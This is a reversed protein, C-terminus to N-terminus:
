PWPVTRCLLLSSRSTGSRAAPARPSDFSGLAIRPRPRDIRPEHDHQRRPLGTGRPHSLRRCRYTSGTSVPSPLPPRCLRRRLRHLRHQHRPRLAALGRVHRSPLCARRAKRPIRAGAGTHKHRQSPIYGADLTQCVGDQSDRGQNLPSSWEFDGINGIKMRSASRPWSYSPM